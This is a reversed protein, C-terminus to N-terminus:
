LNEEVLDYIVLDLDQDYFTEAETILVNDEPTNPKLEFASVFGKNQCKGVEKGNILLDAKFAPTEYGIATISEINKLKINM